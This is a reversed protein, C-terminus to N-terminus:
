TTKNQAANRAKAKERKLAANMEPIMEIYGRKNEIFKAFTDGFPEDRPPINKLPINYHKALKELYQLAIDIYEDKGQM